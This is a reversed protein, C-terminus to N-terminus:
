LIFCQRRLRQMRTRLSARAALEFVEDVGSMDLASCELYRIAGIRMARASGASPLATASPLRHSPPHAPVRHPQQVVALSGEMARKRLDTKCGVLITPVHECFHSVEPTWKDAVNYFSRGNVVSFCILVVDTEPYSLPRLRDYEEQGATDWLALEVKRGNSTKVYALYNEFVTPLYGQPFSGTSYVILLCTKGCAGDGVVVLKKRIGTAAYGYASFPM